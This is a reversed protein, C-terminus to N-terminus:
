SIKSQFRALVKQGRSGPHFSLEQDTVLIHEQMKIRKKQYIGALWNLLHGLGTLEFIAETFGRVRKTGRGIPLPFFPSTASWAPFSLYDKIWLNEQWFKKLVAEGLVPILSAYEVATYLNRDKELTLGECVYHNLCFRAKVKNGHRRQGIIQFYFSVLFRSFWIRNKKTLVFLDIDSDETSNLLVGSGSIAVARLYPFFRLPHLYKKIKRFNKLSSRYKQNRIEVLGQRGALFYFGSDHSIMGGLEDDIILEIETVLARTEGKLYPPNLPNHVLYDKIEMLTLPMDQADFFALTHYISKAFPSM